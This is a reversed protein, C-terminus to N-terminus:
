FASFHGSYPSFSLKFYRLFLLSFAIGAALAWPAFGAASLRLVKKLILDVVWGGTYFVNAPLQFLVLYFVWVQWRSTWSNFASWRFHLIPILLIILNYYLRRSEWWLIISRWTQPAKPRAFLDTPVLMSISPVVPHL